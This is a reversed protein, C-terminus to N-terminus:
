DIMGLYVTGGSWTIRPTTDEIEVFQVSGDLYSGTVGQWAGIDKRDSDTHPDCPNGPVTWSDTAIDQMVLASASSDALNRPVWSDQQYYDPGHWNGLYFYGIYNAGVAGSANKYVKVPPTRDTLRPCAFSAINDPAYGKDSLAWILDTSRTTAYLDPYNPSLEPPLSGLNDNAYLHIMITSSRLNAKCKTDMALEKAKRLSPLLISVLLSIIAIVVLLEILTFGHSLSKPKKTVM